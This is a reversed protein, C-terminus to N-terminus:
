KQKLKNHLYQQVEKLNDDVIYKVIQDVRDHHGIFPRAKFILKSGPKKLALAKWYQAEASLRASKSGKSSKPMCKYYMAWFYKRMRPTVTVTGGENQIKAYPLSSSFFITNSQIVAKLSRSLAGSRILLSGRHNPMRTQPWKEGFFAKERFNNSTEKLIEVKLDTLINKIFDPM